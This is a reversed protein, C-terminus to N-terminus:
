KKATRLPTNRPECLLQRTRLTVAQRSGNREVILNVPTGAEGHLRASLQEQNMSSTSQGNIALLRDGIEIGGKDAPSNQWLSMVAFGDGSRAFQIGVTTYRYPDDHYGPDKKVFIRNHPLDFAVEFRSLVESGLIGGFTAESFVGTGVKPQVRVAQDSLTADELSLSPLCVLFAPPTASGARMVGQAISTPTWTDALKHWTGWSLNTSNTGTDLLLEVPVGMINTPVFFDNGSRRLPIVQGLRKEAGLPGIALEHKSYNLRFAFRQLIDNGLVGEVPVDLGQSIPALGIVALTQQQFAQTGLSMVSATVVTGEQVRYDKLLDVGGSPSLHMQQAISADVVSRESGTDLLFSLDRDNLRVPVIVANNVVRVNLREQAAARPVSLFLVVGISLVQTVTALRSVMSPM